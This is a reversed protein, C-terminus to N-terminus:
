LKIPSCCEARVAPVQHQSTVMSERGLLRMLTYVSVDSNALEIALTHRLGHLLAGRERGVAPQSHLASRM